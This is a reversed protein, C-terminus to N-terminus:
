VEYFQKMRWVRGNRTIMSVGVTMGRLDEVDVRRGLFGSISSEVNDSHWKVKTGDDLTLVVYPSEWAMNTCCSHGAATVVAFSDVRATKKEPKPLIANLM